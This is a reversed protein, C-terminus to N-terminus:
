QKARHGVAFFVMFFVAIAAVVMGLKTTASIHGIYGYYTSLARNGRLDIASAASAPSTQGALLQRVEPLFVQRRVEPWAPNSVSSVPHGLGRLFAKYEPHEVYWPDDLLDRQVPVLVPVKSQGGEMVSKQSTSSCLFALLKDCIERHGRSAAPMAIVGAFIDVSSAFYKKAPCEVAKIGLEPARSRIQSVAGTDGFFMAIRGSIFARLLEDRSWRLSEAPVYQSLQRLMGLAAVGPAEGDVKRGVVLKLDPDQLQQVLDMLKKDEQSRFPSDDWKCAALEKIAMVLAAFEAPLEIRRSGKWKELQQDVGAASASGDLLGNPYDRIFRILEIDEKGLKTDPQIGALTVKAGMELANGLEEADTGSVPGKLRKKVFEKIQGSWTREVPVCGYQKLVMEALRCLSDGDAGDMGLPFFDADFRRKLGACTTLLQDWSNLSAGDPNNYGAEQLLSANCILQISRARFPAAYMKDEQWSAAVVTSFMRGVDGRSAETRPLVVSKAVLEPLESLPVELVDPSHRTLTHRIIHDQEAPGDPLLVVKIGANQREFDRVTEDLQRFEPSQQAFFTQFTISTCGSGPQEAAAMSPVAAVM